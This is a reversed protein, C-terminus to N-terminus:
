IGAEVQDANDVPHTQTNEAGLLKRAQIRALVRVPGDGGTVVPELLLCSNPSSHEPHARACQGGRAASAGIAM